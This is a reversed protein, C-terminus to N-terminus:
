AGVGCMAEFGFGHSPPQLCGPERGSASFGVSCMQSIVGPNITTLAGYRRKEAKGFM